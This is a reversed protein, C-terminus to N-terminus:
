EGDHFGVRNIGGSCQLLTDCEGMSREAPHIMRLKLTFPM